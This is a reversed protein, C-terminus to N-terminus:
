RGAKTRRGSHTEGTREAPERDEGTGMNLEAHGRQAQMAESRKDLENERGAKPSHKKGEGTPPMNKKNRSQNAM